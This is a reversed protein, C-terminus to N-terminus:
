KIHEIIGGNEEIVLECRYLLDAVSDCLEDQQIKQIENIITAKLEEM